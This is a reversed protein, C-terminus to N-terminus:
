RTVTSVGVPYGGLVDAASTNITFTPSSYTAGGTQGNAPLTGTLPAFWYFPASVSVEVINGPLNGNPYPIATNLANTAYYNVSITAPSDNKHAFGMSYSEVIAKISDDQGGGNTQFTVAYRCGERVANQLTMWRFQMVGLDFFGFLLAMMPMLTLVLEVLATGSSRAKHRPSIRIVKMVQKDKVVTLTNDM